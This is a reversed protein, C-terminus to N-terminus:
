HIIVCLNECFLRPSSVPTVAPNEKCVLMHALIEEETPLEEDCYLCPCDDEGSNVGMPLIFKHAGDTAFIEEDSMFHAYEPRALLNLLEEFPSLGELKCKQKWLFM